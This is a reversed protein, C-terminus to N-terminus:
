ISLYNRVHDNGNETRITQPNGNRGIKYVLFRLGGNKVQTAVQTVFKEKLLDVQIYGLDATTDGSGTSWYDDGANNLRAKYENGVDGGYSTIQDTRIQGSEM